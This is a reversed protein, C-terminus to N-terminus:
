RPLLRDLVSGILPAVDIGNTAHPVTNTSIIQRAGAALIAKDAGDGLLAHVVVCTVNHVDLAALQGIVQALTHGSSAIDDVIVPNGSRMIAPDPASVRVDRDGSRIKDLVVCPAGLSQAVREAWQASERDPGVLVPNQVHTRIWDSVAPMASVAVAPVSFIEELSGLRHLHPDITVLWDFSTSLFKAYTHASRSQGPRFRQDQRMYGLYPAVLGIRRAGLERATSAAFYMPLSKADPDCLTCIVVVDRGACDGHLTILSERDPFRHWELTGADADLHAILKQALRDDDPFHFVIPRM